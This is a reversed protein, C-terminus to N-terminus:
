AAGAQSLAALRKEVKSIAEDTCKQRYTVDAFSYSIGRERLRADQWMWRLTSRAAPSNGDFSWCWADGMHLCTRRHEDHDPGVAIAPMPLAAVEAQALNYRALQEALKAREARLIALRKAASAGRRLKSQVEMAEASACGTGVITTSGDDLEVTAHVEHLRGCRSCEHEEGSCPIPVWRDDQEEYERTDVVSIIKVITAM